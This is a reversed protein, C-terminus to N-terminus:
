VETLERSDSMRLRFRHYNHCDHFKRLTLLGLGNTTQVTGDGVAAPRGLNRVLAAGQDRPDVTNGLDGQQFKHIGLPLISARVSSHVVVHYLGETGVIRDGRLHSMLNGQLQRLLDGAILDNNSGMCVPFMQVGMEYDVGHAVFGTELVVAVLFTEHSQSLCGVLQTHLVTKRNHFGLLLFLFFFAGHGVPLVAGIGLALAPLHIQLDGNVFAHCLGPAPFM